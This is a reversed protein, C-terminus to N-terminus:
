ELPEALISDFIEELPKLATALEDRIDSNRKIAYGIRSYASGKTRQTLWVQLWAKDKQAQTQDNNQICAEWQNACAAGASESPIARRILTELAGLKEKDPLQYSIFRARNNITTQLESLLKDTDTLNDESDLVVGAIRIGSGGSEDFMLDVTEKINIRGKADILEIDSKKLGRKERLLTFIDYEDAGECVLVRASQLARDNLSSSAM